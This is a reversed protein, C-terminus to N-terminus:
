ASGRHLHSYASLDSSWIPEVPGMVSMYGSAGALWSRYDALPLIELAKSTAGPRFRERLEGSTLTLGVDFVTHVCGIENQVLAVLATLEREAPALGLVADVRDLAYAALDDGSKIAMRSKSCSGGVMYTESEVVKEVTHLVVCRDTTRILSDVIVTRDLHEARVEPRTHLAKMAAHVRYAVPALRLEIGQGTVTFDNLRYGEADYYTKGSKAAVDLQRQWELEIMEEIVSDVARTSVTENVITLAPIPV